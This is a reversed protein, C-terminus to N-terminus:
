RVPLISPDLNLAAKTADDQGNYNKLQEYPVKTTSPDAFSGSSVSLRDITIVSGDKAEEAEAAARARDQEERLKRMRAEYPDEFRNRQTLEPDWGLFHCTFMAPEDGAHIFVIPTDPSRGDTAHEVYRKATEASMSKEQETSQSGIWVYVETFTDLIM